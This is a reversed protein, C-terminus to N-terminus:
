RRLRLRQGTQLANPNIGPNLSELTPVPVRTRVSIVSLSDGAKVTYFTPAKRPSRRLLSNIENARPRAHHKSGIEGEVIVVTTAIVALIAIPALFRGRNRTVMAAAIM